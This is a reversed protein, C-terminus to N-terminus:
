DDSINLIIEPEFDGSCYLGDEEFDISHSKEKEKLKYHVKAILDASEVCEEFDNLKKKVGTSDHYKHCGGGVLGFNGLYYYTFLRLRGKSDDDPLAQLYQREDSGENRFSDKSLGIEHAMVYIRDRIEKADKVKESNIHHNLFKVHEFEDWDDTEDDFKQIGYFCGWQGEAFISVKIKM